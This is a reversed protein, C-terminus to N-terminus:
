SRCQAPKVLTSPLESWNRELQQIDTCSLRPNEKLDLTTLQLLALLPAVSTLTNNNLLLVRLQPLKALENVSQISNHALNLEELGAFTELGQLSRIGANSCNLLTLDVAKIIQRDAITQEVCRALNVDGISYNSFLPAPTYVVRENVSVAYGCGTAFLLLIILGNLKWIAKKHM